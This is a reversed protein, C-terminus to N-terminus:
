LAEFTGAVFVEDHPCMFGETQLTPQTQFKLGLLQQKQSLLESRIQDSKTLNSAQQINMKNLLSGTELSRWLLM